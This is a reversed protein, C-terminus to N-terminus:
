SARQSEIRGCVPCAYIEEIVGDMAETMQAAEERTRPYVLKSAQHNMEAGDAPCIMEDAM